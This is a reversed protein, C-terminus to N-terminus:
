GNPPVNAHVWDWWARRMHEALAAPIEPRPTTPKVSVCKNGLCRDCMRAGEIDHFGGGIEGRGNCQPCVGFLPKQVWEFFARLKWEETEVIPENM